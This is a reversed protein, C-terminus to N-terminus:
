DKKLNNRYILCRDMSSSL